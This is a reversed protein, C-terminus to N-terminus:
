QNCAAIGHEYLYEPAIDIDGDNWVLVGYDIYGSHFVSNDTLPAFAPKNLLPKFDFIKAEGTNFRIWMKHDDLPRMGSVKISAPQEGAYAIGNVIYM